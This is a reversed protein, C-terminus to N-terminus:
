KDISENSLKSYSHTKYSIVTQFFWQLQSLTSSINYVLSFTGNVYLYSLIIFHIIVFIFRNHNFVEPWSSIISFTFKHIQPHYSPYDSQTPQELISILPQLANSQDFTLVILFNLIPSQQAFSYWFSPYSSSLLETLM